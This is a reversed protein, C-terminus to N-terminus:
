SLLVKNWTSPTGFTRPSTVRSRSPIRTDATLVKPPRHRSSLRPDQITKRAQQRHTKVVLRKMGLPQERSPLAHEAREGPKPSTFRPAARAPSGWASHIKRHAPSRRRGSRGPPRAPPPASRHAPPAPPHITAAQPCRRAAPAPRRLAHSRRGDSQIRRRNCGAVIGIVPDCQGRGRVQRLHAGPGHHEGCPHDFLRGHEAVIIQGAHHQCRARRPQQRAVADSGAAPHDDDGAIELRIEVQRSNCARAAHATAAMTSSRAAGSLSAAAVAQAASPM